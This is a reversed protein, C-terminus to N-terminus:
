NIKFIKFYTGIALSNAVNSTFTISTVNATNTRIHSGQQLGIATPEDRNHTHTARPRGSLDRIIDIFGTAYSSLALEILRATNARNSSTSSGGSYLAQNYYNTATTDANYFMSITLGSATANGISFVIHYEGDAALDLGSATISTAAAGAVTITQVLTMGGGSSGNAAATIRGDADVTLNTNTYSGPTVATSALETSGVAGANIDWVLGSGSVTIDGKNGDTVGGSGTSAATIRGQADVTIDAGTYSGPTVATNALSITGAGVIPSPSASLGTGAAVSTVTGSGSASVQWSPAAGPGNSTWIYNLAGAAVATPAGSVGGVIMDGETTMPNLFAPVPQFLSGDYVPTDGAAFPTTPDVDALTTLLRQNWGKAGLEDTGYYFSNGPSSTDGQLSLAVLGSQPTGTVRVSYLGQILFNGSEIDEILEFLQDIQAQLEANGTSSAVSRMWNYFERTATGANGQPGDKLNILGQNARPLTIDVM